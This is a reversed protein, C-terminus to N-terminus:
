PFAKALFLDWLDLIDTEIWPWLYTGNKQGFIYLM